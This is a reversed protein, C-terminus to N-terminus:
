PTSSPPPPTSSAAHHRSNRCIRPDITSMFREADKRSKLRHLQAQGAFKELSAVLRPRYLTQFNWVFKVFEPDVREPCGEPMGERTRGYDRVLRMLVGYICTWRTFDLWVVTDAVPMRLDFTAYYNGVMIWTPGYALRAVVDRFESMPTEIWGPRWYFFDLEILPLKLAKALCRGLTSKGAGSRGIVIVRRM